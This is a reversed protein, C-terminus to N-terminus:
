YNRKKIFKLMCRCQGKGKHRSSATGSTHELSIDGKPNKILDYYKYDTLGQIDGEDGDEHIDGTPDIHLELNTLEDAAKVCTPCVNKDEKTKFKYYYVDYTIPEEYEYDIDSNDLIDELPEDTQVVVSEEEVETDYGGDDRVQNGIAETVAHAVDKLAQKFNAFGFM